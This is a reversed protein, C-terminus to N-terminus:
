RSEMMEFKELRNVSCNLLVFNRKANLPINLFMVSPAALVGGHTVVGIKPIETRSRRSHGPVGIMFSVIAREEQSKINLAMTVLNISMLHNELMWGHDDRRFGLDRERLSEM